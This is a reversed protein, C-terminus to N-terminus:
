LYLIIVEVAHNNDQQSDELDTRQRSGELSTNQEAWMEAYFSHPKTILQAHSGSEMVEGNGPVFIEKILTLLHM